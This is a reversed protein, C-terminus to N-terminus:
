RRSTIELKKMEEVVKTAPSLLAVGEYDPSSYKKYVVKLKSVSSTSHLEVLVKACDRTNWYVCFETHKVFNM